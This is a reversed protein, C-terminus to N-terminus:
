VKSVVENEFKEVIGVSSNNITKFYINGRFTVKTPDEPIHESDLWIAKADVRPTITEPEEYWTLNNDTHSKNKVTNKYAAEAIHKTYNDASM